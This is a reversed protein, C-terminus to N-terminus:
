SAQPERERTDAALTAGAPAAPRVSAAGKPKPPYTMTKSVETRMHTLLVQATPTLDRDRAKVLYLDRTLGGKVRLVAMGARAPGVLACGPLVSVGLGARVLNKLTHLAAARYAVLPEFGAQRCAHTIRSTMQYSTGPLVFDDNRFESLDVVAQGAARHGPCTIVFMDESGLAIADLSEPSGTNGTIAFDLSGSSVGQQLRLDGDEVLDIRVRPFVQHFSALANPVLYAAVSPAVGMVVEGAEAGSQDRMTRVAENARSLVVRALPLFVEGDATLSITRGHRDFLRTGLEEELRKVQYSLAPQSVHLLEAAGTFTLTEAITVFYRLQSLEM